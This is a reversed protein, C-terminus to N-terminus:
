LPVPTPLVMPGQWTRHSPSPSPSPAQDQQPGAAPNGDPRVGSGGDSRSTARSPTNGEGARARHGASAEPGPGDILNALFIWYASGDPTACKALVMHRFSGDQGAQSAAEPSVLASAQIEYISQQGGNSYIVRDRSRTQLLPTFVGPTTGLSPSCTM